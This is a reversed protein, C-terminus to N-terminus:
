LLNYIQEIFSEGTSVCSLMVGICLLLLIARLTYPLESKYYISRKRLTNLILDFILLRCSAFTAIIDSFLVFPAIKGCVEFHLLGTMYAALLPVYIAMQGDRLWHWPKGMSETNQNKIGFHDRFADIANVVLGFLVVQAVFLLGNM